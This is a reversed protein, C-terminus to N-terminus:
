APAATGTQGCAMKNLSLAANMLSVFPDEPESKKLDNGISRLDIIAYALLLTRLSDNDEGIYEALIKLKLRVEFGSKADTTIIQREIDDVARFARYSAEKTADEDHSANLNASAVQWRAFLERVTPATDDTTM